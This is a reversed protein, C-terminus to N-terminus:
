DSYMTLKETLDMTKNTSSGQDVKGGIVIAGTKAGKGTQDPINASTAASFGDFGLSIAKDISADLGQYARQADEASSVGGGCGPAGLAVVVLSCALLSHKM